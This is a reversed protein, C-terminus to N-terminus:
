MMQIHVFSPENCFYGVIMFGRSLPPVIYKSAVPVSELLPSENLSKNSSSVVRM